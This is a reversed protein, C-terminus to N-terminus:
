VNTEESPESFRTQNSPSIFEGDEYISHVHVHDVEPDFAVFEVNGTLIAALREHTRLIDKVEGDAVIALHYVENDTPPPPPVDLVLKGHNRHEFHYTDSKRMLFKEVLLIKILQLTSLKIFDPNKVYTAMSDNNEPGKLEDREKFFM